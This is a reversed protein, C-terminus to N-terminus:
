QNVVTVAITYDHIVPNALLRECMQKATNEVDKETEADITVQIKKALKLERTKFGIRELSQKIAAAEPDLMGGKLQINIDLTYQM